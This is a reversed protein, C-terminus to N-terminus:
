TCHELESNMSITSNSPKEVGLQMLQSLNPLAATVVGLDWHSSVWLKNRVGFGMTVQFVMLAGGKRCYSIKKIGSLDRAGEKGGLFEKMIIAALSSLTSFQVTVIVNKWKYTVWMVEAEMENNLAFWMAIAWEFPCSTHDGWPGPISFFLFDQASIIDGIGTSVSFPAWSHKNPKIEPPWEYQKKNRDSGSHLVKSNEQARPCRISKM